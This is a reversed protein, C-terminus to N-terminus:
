LAIGFLISFFHCLSGALVFLHWVAHSWKLSKWAYFVAGVTYCLGGVVFFVFGTTSLQEFLPKVAIVCLWGMLLYSGLSVWKFRGTFFAKFLIGILACSWIVGFISWGLAGRLPALTFPTYTGAILLYIASHDIIKMVRRVGPKRASHYLTSGLFLLIFTTGYIACSVIEWPGKRLSSFVVLLVLVAIGIVFGIGHTIANALEEGASYDDKKEM